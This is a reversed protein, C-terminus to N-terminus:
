KAQAQYLTKSPSTDRETARATSTSPRDTGDVSASDTVITPPLISVMVNGRRAKYTSPIRSIPVEDAIAECFARNGDFMM